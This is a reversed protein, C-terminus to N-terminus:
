LVGSKPSSFKCILAQNQNLVNQRFDFIQDLHDAFKLFIKFHAAPPLLNLIEARFWDLPASLKSYQLSQPGLYVQLRINPERRTFPQASKGKDRIM